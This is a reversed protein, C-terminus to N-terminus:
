DEKLLDLKKMIELTSSNCTCAIAPNQHLISALLTNVSRPQSILFFLNNNNKQEM